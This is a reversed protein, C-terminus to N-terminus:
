LTGSPSTVTHSVIRKTEHYINVHITFSKHSLCIPTLSPAKIIEHWAYKRSQKTHCYLPRAFFSLRCQSQRIRSFLGTIPCGAAKEAALLFRLQILPFLFFFVPVTEFM